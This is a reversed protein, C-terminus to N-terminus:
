LRELQAALNKRRTLFELKRRTAEVILSNFHDFARADHEELALWRDVNFTDIVYQEDLVKCALACMQARLRRRKWWRLM